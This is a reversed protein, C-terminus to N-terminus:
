QYRGAGTHWGHDAAAVAYRRSVLMALNGGWYSDKKVNGTRDM